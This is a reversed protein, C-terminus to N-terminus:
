SGDDVDGREQVIGGTLAVLDALGVPVPEPFFNHRSM